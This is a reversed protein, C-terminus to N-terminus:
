KDERLRYFRPHRFKNDETLEMYAVEIVKGIINKTFYDNREKDSLGTGVNGMSTIFAGLKGINRGKGEIIGLVEVDETQIDKVKYLTNEGWLVLGEYGKNKVLKFTADIYEKTPNVVTDIYLREDIEPYLKYVEEQEISRNSHSRVIELTNKFSGCFIEAQEFDLTNPINYLPKGSRAVIGNPTKIARVGDIKITIKYTGQLDEKNWVKFKLKM